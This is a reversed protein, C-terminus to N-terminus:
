GGLLDSRGDAMSDRVDLSDDDFDVLARLHAHPGALVVPVRVGPLGRVM